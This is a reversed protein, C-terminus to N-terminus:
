KQHGGPLGGSPLGGNSLGGRAQGWGPPMLVQQMQQLAPNLQQQQQALQSAAVRGQSSPNQNTPAAGNAATNPQIRWGRNAATAIHKPRPKPTPTGAPPGATDVGGTTPPPVTTQSPPLYPRTIFPLPPMNGETSYYLSATRGQRLTM